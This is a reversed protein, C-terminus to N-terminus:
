AIKIATELNNIAVKSHQHGVLNALGVIQLLYISAEVANLHPKLQTFARSKKSFTHHRQLAGSYCRLAPNHVGRM